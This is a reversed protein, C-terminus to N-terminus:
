CPSKFSHLIHGQSKVWINNLIDRSFGVGWSWTMDSGMGGVAGGRMAGVAGGRMGEAAGGKMVGVAGGSMVDGACCCRGPAVHDM